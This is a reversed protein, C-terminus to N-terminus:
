KCPNSNVCKLALLIEAKKVKKSQNMCTSGILVIRNDSPSHSLTRQSLEKNENELNKTGAKHSQVQSIGAGDVWFSTNYVVFHFINLFFFCASFHQASVKPIWFFEKECLSNSCPSVYFVASTVSFEIVTCHSYNDM